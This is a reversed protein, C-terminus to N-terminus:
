APSVDHTRLHSTLLRLKSEREFVGCGVKLSEPPPIADREMLDDERQTRARGATYWWELFKLFMIASPIATKLASLTM